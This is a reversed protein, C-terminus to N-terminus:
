IFNKTNVGIECGYPFSVPRTVISRKYVDFHRTPWPSFGFIMEYFMIGLSWIDCKSSYEKSYILQPAMYLPTGCVEKLTERNIDMKRTFGYDALKCVNDKILINEPKVDRHIYGKNLLVRFGELIHILIDLCVKEPLKHENAVLLKKLDSTCLELIIYTYNNGVRYDLMRVTNPCGTQQM